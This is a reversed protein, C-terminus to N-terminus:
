ESRQLSAEIAEGARAVLREADLVFVLRGDISRREAVPGAGRARAGDGIVLGEIRDAGLGLKAGGNPRPAIVLVHSPEPLESADIELLTERRMVPLADGHSNIVGVQELPLTPICAMASAEAVEVVCAIPLAYLSGGVEFTLLRADSIVATAASM